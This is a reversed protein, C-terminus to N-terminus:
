RPGRDLTGFLLDGIPWTINFNRHAMVAPDHHRTHLRRLVALGPLRAIRSGPRAHYAYHLFEYSLYYGVGTAVMLWAVNASVLWALLLGVPLAFGGFFFVVLIPPFLVARLDRADDYPMVDATFFRHHQGAHRKYIAGLGPVPRHMVYRHGLYEALNAYLFAIPVTLWEAPRVGDLMLLCAVFALTGGGFTYAAHRVGSYDPPIEDRRYQTRFTATDM